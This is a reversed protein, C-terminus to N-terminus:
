EGETIIIETGDADVFIVPEHQPANPPPPPPIISGDPLVKAAPDKPLYLVRPTLNIQFGEKHELAVAPALRVNLGEIIMSSAEAFM